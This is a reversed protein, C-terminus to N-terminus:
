QKKPLAMSKRALSLSAISKEGWVTWGDMAHNDPWPSEYTVKWKGSVKLGAGQYSFTFTDDSIKQLSIEFEEREFQIIRSQQSSPISQPGDPFATAFLNVSEAILMGISHQYKNRFSEADKKNSIGFFLYYFDGGLHLLKKTNNGSSEEFYREGNSFTIFSYTGVSSGEMQYEDVILEIKGFCGYNKFCSNWTFKSQALATNELLLLWVCFLASLIGFRNRLITIM